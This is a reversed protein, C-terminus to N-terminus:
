IMLFYKFFSPCVNFPCLLPEWQVFRPDHILIFSLLLNYGMLHFFEHAQVSIFLYIPLQSLKEKCYFAMQHIHLFNHFRFIVIQYDHYYYSLWFVGISALVLPHPISYKSLRLTGGGLIVSQNALPYLTVKCHVQCYKLWSILILMVLFSVFIITYWRVSCLLFGADIRLYEKWFFFFCLCVVHLRLRFM